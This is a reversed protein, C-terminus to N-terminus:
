DSPVPVLVRKFGYLPVHVDELSNHGVIRFHVVLLALLLLKLLLLLLLLLLELAILHHEEWHRDQQTKISDEKGVVHKQKGYRTNSKGKGVAAHTCEYVCGYVCIAHLAHMCLCMRVYMCLCMRVYMCVYVHM